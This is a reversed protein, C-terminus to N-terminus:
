AYRKITTNPNPIPMTTIGIRLWIEKKIGIWIWFEMQHRDLDPIDNFRHRDV